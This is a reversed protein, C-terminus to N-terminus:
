DPDLVRLLPQLFEAYNRWYGVSDTYMPQRVQYSSATTVVGPTAHFRLCDDHWDLDCAALLRRIEPEPDQALSEYRVDHISGPYVEHWHRMLRRYLNHFRGITELEYAFRYNGTTFNQRYISLCTDRADRVCHIITANPLAARILGVMMLNFPLKDAVRPARTDLEDLRALYTRGFTEFAAAPYSDLPRFHRHMAPDLFLSVGLAFAHELEGAGFVAPHSGLIKEVLSTGSRVMGVIFIPRNSQPAAVQLRAVADRSFTQMINAFLEADSEISYPLIARRLRNGLEFYRFAERYDRLDEFAKGLAFALHVRNDHPLAGSHLLSLMTAIHPDARDRYRHLGSYTFHAQTYDPREAMIQAYLASAEDFRGQAKLLNGLLYRAPINQPWRRVIRRYADLAQEIRGAREYGGALGAAAEISGPDAAVAQRWLRLAEAQRGGQGCLAALRCLVECTAAKEALLARYQAEAAALDGRAHAAVAHQLRAQQAETLPKM